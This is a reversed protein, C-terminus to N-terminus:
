RSRSTAEAAAQYILGTGNDDPHEQAERIRELTREGDRRSIRKKDLDYRTLAKLNEIHTDGAPVYWYKWYNEPTINKGAADKLYETGCSPEPHYVIFKPDDWFRFAFLM